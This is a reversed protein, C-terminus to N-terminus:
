RSTPWSTQRRYAVIIELRGTPKSDKLDVLRTELTCGQLASTIIQAPEALGASHRVLIGSGSGGLLHDEWVGDVGLGAELLATKIQGALTISETNGALGMVHIRGVFDIARFAYTLDNVQKASLIRGRVEAQLISIANSQAADVHRSIVQGVIQFLFSAVGLWATLTPAWHALAGGAAGGAAAIATWQAANRALVACRM